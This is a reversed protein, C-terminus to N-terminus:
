HKFAGVINSYDDTWVRGGPTALLDNWGAAAKLADPYPSMAVWTSAEKGPESTDEDEDFMAKLGLSSAVQALVPELDLYNNSIHFALLGGPRLKRLYGQVAEKTLLHVPIADSSFADLVILDYGTDPAQALTLRADGLVVDVQAKTNQLYTFYRTDHAIRDVVPDIEYYTMRQGPKGYIALTGVGLGVLAIDKPPRHKNLYDFIRGIPGSRSYYTLPIDRRAADKFQRGHRTTGHVLSFSEGDDTVRHVGFFSRDTLAIRGTSATGVLNSVLLVGGLALGFRLPRDATLFCLIVPLGIAIMTGVPTGAHGLQRSLAALAFTLGAILVSYLIEKPFGPKADPMEKVTAPRLLLALVIAIPYEALSKFVVPALLANFAGGVVGGVSIWLYFATLHQPDPRSEVLRTHCMWAALFFVTLHLLLLPLLPSTSELVLVLALPTVALPLWRGLQAATARRKKAFALIFTLLYLALPVVWLLPIPAVNSTVYTTVGTLLSAPVAALAVWMLPNVPSASSEIAPVAPTEGAPMPLEGFDDRKRLTTLAVVLLVFGLLGYGATWFLRQNGLTLTPEVLLPYCLLGLMSGANSASYLFYPDAAEPNGTRSFWRQLMPAGASVLVFPLGVGLALVRLVSITPNDVGVAGSSGSLAFPLTLAALGFLVVHVLSQVKSSLRSGGHAYLYGLLLSAQFFLLSATWVAPAGGFRPLIMKAVMPQVLFLLASGLFIAFTFLARVATM